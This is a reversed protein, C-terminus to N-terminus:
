RYLRGERIGLSTKMRKLDDKRGVFDPGFPPDPPGLYRGM